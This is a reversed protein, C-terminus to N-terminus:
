LIHSRRPNTSPRQSGPKETQLQSGRADVIRLLLEHQGSGRMVKEFIVRRRPPTTVPPSGRWSRSALLACALLALAGLSWAPSLEPVALVVVSAVLGALCVVLLAMVPKM